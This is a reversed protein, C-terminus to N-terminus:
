GALWGRRHGDPSAQEVQWWQEGQPTSWRRVVRMPAGLEASSIVPAQHQPACRLLQRGCSLLPEGQGQRRRVEPLRWDAGGAPLGAPAVLAFGMLAAVRWTSFRPLM